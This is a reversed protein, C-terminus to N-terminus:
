AVNIKDYWTLGLFWRASGVMTMLMAAWWKRGNTLYYGNIHRSNKCCSKVFLDGAFLPYYYQVFFQKSPFHQDCRFSLTAIIFVAKSLFM